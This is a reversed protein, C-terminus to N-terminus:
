KACVAYPTVTEDGTGDNRVYVLWGTRDAPQSDTIVVKGWSSNSEGGSIAVLGAPCTASAAIYGGKGPVTVIAGTVVTYAGLDTSGGTTASAAKHGERAASGGSAWGVGATAVSAGAGAALLVVSASRV